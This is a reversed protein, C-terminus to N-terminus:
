NNNKNVPVANQAKKIQGKESRQTTGKSKSPGSLTGIKIVVSAIRPLMDLINVVRFLTSYSVDLIM